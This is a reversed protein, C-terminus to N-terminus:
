TNERTSTPILASFLNKTEEVVAQLNVEAEGGNRRRSRPRPRNKRRRYDQQSYRNNQDYDREREYRDKNRIVDTTSFVEQSWETATMAGFTDLPKGAFTPDKDESSLDEGVWVFSPCLLTEVLLALGLM